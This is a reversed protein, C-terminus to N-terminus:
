QYRLQKETPAQLGIRQAAEEMHNQSLLLDRQRALLRNENILRSYTERSMGIQDLAVQIQLGYWVTSGIGIILTVLLMAGITNWMVKTAPLLERAAAPSKKKSAKIKNRSNTIILSGSYSKFM